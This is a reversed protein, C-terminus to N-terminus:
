TIRTAGASPNAIFWSPATFGRAAFADTVAAAVADAAEADVLAIVCGGFGGGTMRAGYAGAAEATEAALDLEPVTVQYDDRLSAHSASLLPGIARASQTRLLAVTDLVRQNETVVHRV